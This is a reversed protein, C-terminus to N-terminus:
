FVFNPFHLYMVRPTVSSRIKNTKDFIPDFNSSKKICGRRTFNLFIQWHVLFILSPTTYPHPLCIKGFDGLSFLFVNFM